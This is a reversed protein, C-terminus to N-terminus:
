LREAGRVSESAALPPLLHVPFAAFRAAAADPCDGPPRVRFCWRGTRSLHQYRPQALPKRRAAGFDDAREAQNSLRSIPQQGYICEAAARRWLRSHFPCGRFASISPIDSSSLRTKPTGAFNPRAGDVSTSTVASNAVPHVAAGM